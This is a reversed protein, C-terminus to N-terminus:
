ISEIRGLRRIGLEEAAERKLTKILLESLTSPSATREVHGGVVLGIRARLDTRAQNLVRRFVCYEFATTRVLTSPIAQVWERSQEAQRRPLWALSDEACALLSTIEGWSRFGACAAICDRRFVLVEQETGIM